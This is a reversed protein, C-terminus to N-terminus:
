KKYEEKLFDNIEAFPLEFNQIGLTFYVVEDPNFIVVIGDDTFYWRGEKELVDRVTTSYDEYLSYTGATQNKELEERIKESAYSYYGDADELVDEIGLRAGDVSSFCYGEAEDQAYMNGYKFVTKTKYLNVSSKNVRGSEMTVTTENLKWEGHPQNEYGYICEDKLAEDSYTDLVEDKEEEFYENIKIAAVTSDTLEAVPYQYSARAVVKGDTAKVEQKETELEVEYKPVVFEVSSTESQVSAASSVESPTALDPNEKKDGAGVGIIIAAIVAVILLLAVSQQMSSMAKIKDMFGVSKPRSKKPALPVNEVPRLEPEEGRVVEEAQPLADEKPAFSEFNYEPTAAPEEAKAPESATLSLIIGEVQADVLQPVSQCAAMLGLTTRFEVQKLAIGQETLVAITNKMREAAKTMRQKVMDATCSMIKAIQVVSLNNYYHFMLTMRQADNLRDIMKDMLLCTQTEELEGKPMEEFEAESFLLEDTDAVAQLFLMPKMKHIYNFCRIAAINKLWIDFQEPNELSDLRAYACDFTEACMEAADEATPMLKLCFYYISKKYKSYIERLADASGGIAREIIEKM